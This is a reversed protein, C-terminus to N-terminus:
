QIIMYPMLAQVGELKTINEFSEFYTYNDGLRNKILSKTYPEPLNGSMIMDIIDTQKPYEKISYDTLNAQKAAYAIAKDLGGLEDVLGLGIADVGSWVRGQGISDVYSKRLGRTRAVLSTFDDYTNVVYKQM